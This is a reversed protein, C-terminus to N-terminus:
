LVSRLCPGYDQESLLSPPEGCKNEWSSGPNHRNWEIFCQLKPPSFLPHFFSEFHLDFFSVTFIIEQSAILYCANQGSM